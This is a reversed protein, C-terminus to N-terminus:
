IPTEKSEDMATFYSKASDIDRAIAHAAENADGARIADIVEGHYIKWGENYSQMDMISAFFPGIQMWLGEIIAVLDVNNAASYILFHFSYNAAFYGHADGRKIAAIMDNDVKQLLDIHARGLNPVAHRTALMELMQRIEFLQEGRMRSIKPVRFASNPEVVLIREAVLRKLAERVPMVSTGFENALARTSLRQGPNYVGSALNWRLKQHIQDNLPLPTRTRAHEGGPTILM